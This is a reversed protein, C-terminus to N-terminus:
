EHEADHRRAVRDIDSHYHQKAPYCSPNCQHPAADGLTCPLSWHKAAPETGDALWWATLAAQESEWAALLKQGEAALLPHASAPSGAAEGAAGARPGAVGPPLQEEEAAALKRLAARLEALDRGCVAAAVRKVPDEEQWAAHAALAARASEM